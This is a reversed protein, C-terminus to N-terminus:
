YYRRRKFIRIGVALLIATGLLLAGQNWMVMPPPAIDFFDRPFRVVIALARGYYGYEGNENWSGMNSYVFYLVLLPVAPLPNKFALAILVYVAVVMALNPLIYICSAYLFDLVSVDTGLQMATRSCLIFFVATLLALVFFVALFGGAAKGLVYQWAKLPKTHLLEYTNKRTDWLFLFALLIASFFVAYVGAFDAFKRSFCWSFRQEKLEEKLYDNVQRASGQYFACDEYVYYANYYSYTEELYRCAEEIKMGAMEKIVGQAEEKSMEFDKELNQKIKGEWLMRQKERTAPIWGESVYADIFSSDSFAAIEQDSQFYRIKLYPELSQYVGALVVIIGIWFLPNKAYDKLVSKVIGRM